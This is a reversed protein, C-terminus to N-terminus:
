TTIDPTQDVAPPIDTAEGGVAICEGCWAVGANAGVVLANLSAVRDVDDLGEFVDDAKGAQKRKLMSYARHALRLGDSDANSMRDACAARHDQMAKAGTLPSDKLAQALSIAEVGAENDPGEDQGGEDGDDFPPAEPPEQPLVEPETLQRSADAAARLRDNGKKPAEQQQVDITVTESENDHVIADRLRASKPLKKILRKLVTKKAMEDYDTDWPSGKRQPGRKRIREIEWKAMFDFQARGNLYAVAYYAIAEGPDEKFCPDHEISSNTGMKVHFTDKERVTFAEISQVTGERHVLAILGQYMPQFQVEGKYPILAGHVGDPELGLRAADLCAKVVSEPRANALAPQRSALLALHLMREPKIADGALEVIRRSQGQLMQQLTPAQNDTKQIAQNV